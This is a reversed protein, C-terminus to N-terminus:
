LIKKFLIKNEEMVKNLNEKVVFQNKLSKPSKYHSKPTYNTYNQDIDIIKKILKKNNNRREDELSQHRKSNLSSLNFNKSLFERTKYFSKAGLVRNYHSTRHIMDDHLGTKPNQLLPNEM